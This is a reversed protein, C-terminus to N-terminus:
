FLWSAKSNRIDADAGFPLYGSGSFIKQPVTEQAFGRKQIDYYYNAIRQDVEKLQLDQM